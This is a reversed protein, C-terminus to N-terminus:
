DEISHIRIIELLLEATKVMDDLRISERVTHVDRMGTGLVGTIIGKEFFINADSGGGTTKTEMKMGLNESAKRAIAVVPHNDPVNTPPFDKEIHIDVYPIRDYPSDKRRNEVVEKFSSVIKNTIKGLKEKDHSRVEGKVTVLNPVINTAIGGEIIGINCTTEHDIRGTDLGAIAKGALVIANIGKEPEAGAHADKGHIKFEIRNAAPARTVIGQTDFADLTYGYKANILSYDLHKAGLLGIEECITFVIELPGHRLDNEQLVRITELIVAISSKDDAGLITSGSSTFNGDKLVVNIGRGPEVTDMHANFLLPEIDFRAILNGTNSGTRDGAGDVVTKAGMSKLIKRIECCVAAEEKSVSDIGVLLRFTEALRDKNIMKKM